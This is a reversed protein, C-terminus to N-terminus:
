LWDIGYKGNVRGFRFPLGSVIHLQVYTKVDVYDKYTVKKSECLGNDLSVDLMPRISVWKIIDETDVDSADIVPSGPVVDSIDMYKPKCAYSYDVVNKGKDTGYKTYRNREIALFLMVSDNSPYDGKLWSRVRNNAEIRSMATKAVIMTGGRSTDVRLSVGNDLNHEYGPHGKPSKKFWLNLNVKTISRARKAFCKFPEIEYHGDVQIREWDHPDTKHDYHYNNNGCVRGPKRLAKRLRRFLSRRNEKPIDTIISSGAQMYDSSEHRCAGHRIGYDCRSCNSDHKVCWPCIEDDTVNMYDKRGLAKDIAGAIKDVEKESWSELEKRDYTNFMTPALKPVRTDWTALVEKREEFSEKYDELIKNKEEMFAVLNLKTTRM